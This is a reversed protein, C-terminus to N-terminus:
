PFPPIQFLLLLISLCLSVTPERRDILRLSHTLPLAFGLRLDFTRNGGLIPPEGIYEEFLLEARKAHKLLHAQLTSQGNSGTM